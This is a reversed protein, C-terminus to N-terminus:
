YVQLSGAGLRAEIEVKNAATAFDPSEYGGNARPFRRTDVDMSGVAVSGGHVRVAVGEPARLKISAAGGEVLVRTHGAHAPLTIETSSAGTQLRLDTVRVETLDFQAEGAGTRLELTLPVDRTLRMEWELGRNSWDWWSWGLDPPRLEVNLTDGDRRAQREVGGYFTGSLLEGPNTGASAALRGAGHNVRVQAQAAGELPISATESAVPRRFFIGALIWVGAGILALPWFINWIPFPLLNLNDLLLVAGLLVLLTGWFAAGRRM